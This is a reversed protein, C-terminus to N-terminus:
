NRKIKSTGALQNTLFVLKKCRNVQNAPFITKLVIIKTGDGFHGEHTLNSMVSQQSPQVNNNNNNNNNNNLLFM